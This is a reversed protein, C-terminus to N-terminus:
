RHQSKFMDMMLKFKEVEQKQHADLAERRLKREEERDLKDQELRKLDLELREREIAV